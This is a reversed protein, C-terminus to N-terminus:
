VDNDTNDFIDKPEIAISDINSIDSNNLSAKSSTVVLDKGGHDNKTHNTSYVEEM